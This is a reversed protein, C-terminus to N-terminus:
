EKVIWKATYSILQQLLITNGKIFKAVVTENYNRVTYLFVEKSIKIKYRFSLREVLLDMHNFKENLFVSFSIASNQILIAKM